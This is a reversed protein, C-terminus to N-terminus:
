EAEVPIFKFETVDFLGADTMKIEPIVPLAMFCLTMLPEVDRNVELVEQATKHISGLKRDVWDASQDSMLGAVPLPMPELVKQQEVLVAGGQQEALAQVAFALDENSTGAAIINHSDHNVTLAVAGRRIGYGKLLGVSLFGTNNHREIVALKCIDQEPDFVFDGDQDTKVTQVTKKTVIEGPIIEIVNARGSKLKM